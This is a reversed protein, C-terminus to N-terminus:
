IYPFPKLAMDAAIWAQIEKVVALFRKWVTRALLDSRCKVIEQLQDYVNSSLGGVRIKTRGHGLGERPRQCLLVTDDMGCDYPSGSCAMRWHEALKDGRASSNSVIPIAGEFV